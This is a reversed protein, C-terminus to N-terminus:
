HSSRFAPAKAVGLILSSLRYNSAKADRVIRRISPMDYHEIRRALAYSMLMSTFHTIVVDSRSVLAARLDAAGKLPTGDYLEGATKVPM